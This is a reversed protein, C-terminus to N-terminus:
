AKGAAVKNLYGSENEWVAKYIYHAEFDERNKFIRGCDCKAKRLGFGVYYPHAVVPRYIERGTQPDIFSGQVDDAFTHKFDKSM